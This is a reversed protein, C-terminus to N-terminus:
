AFGDGVQTVGGTNGTRGLIRNVKALKLAQSDQLRFRRSIYYMRCHNLSLQVVM